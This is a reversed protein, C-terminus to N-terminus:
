GIKDEEEKIKTTTMEVGRRREGGGTDDARVRVAAGSNCRGEGVIEKWGM